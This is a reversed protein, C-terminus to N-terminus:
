TGHCSACKVDYIAQGEHVSGHGPPLGRGDPRVDIDWGAIEPPTAAHGFGFRATAGPQAAGTAM